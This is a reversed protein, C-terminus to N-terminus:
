CCNSSERVFKLMDRPNTSISKSCVMSCLELDVPLQDNECDQDELELCQSGRPGDDISFVSVFFANVGGGHGHGQKHPSVMMGMRSDVSTIEVRGKAM